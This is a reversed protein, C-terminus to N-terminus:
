AIAPVGYQNIKNWFQGWRESQVLCRLALVISAGRDKWRMGSRCLRQKIVVKCAAETVGSGIPLRQAQYAAYNMRKQQNTFYTIAANLKEQNAPSLTKEKQLQELEHLQDVVAHHNHKLDHCHQELWAVRATEQNNKFLAQSAKTLYETAHFFDTIQTRTHQELFTWNDSAGDAIGVYEAHPFQEKLHAIERNMREFFRAKGYEPAGALYDTHLRKGDQDYFALSGSMAQRYGDDRMLMMAGDIGIAVTAVAETLAPVYRWSKEKAIAITGVQDAIDQIHGRSLARGHNDEFDAQVEDVSSRAYKNAIMKALKPTASRIIRAGEDLPCVTGGGQANQYVHRAIGVKGYPTEYEKEVRGKSSFCVDGFAIPSGDTDFRKLLASTGLLGVANVAAQVVEEGNLMSGVLPIAVEVVVQQDCCSKIQASVDVTLKM